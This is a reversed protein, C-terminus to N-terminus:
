LKKEAYTLIQQWRGLDGEYMRHTENPDPYWDEATGRKRRSVLAALRDQSETIRSQILTLVQDRAESDKVAM